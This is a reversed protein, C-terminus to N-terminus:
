IMENGDVLKGQKIVAKVKKLSGIHEFPNGEVAIIDADKGTELSGTENEIACIKAGNLTIAKLVDINAAGLEVAYEAEQALGGHMGDTGLAFPIGANIIARMRESIDEREDLHGQILHKPYRNVIEDNLIPSLTLVLKTNSKVLREIQYDSIHYAHELTNLGLELANDLGIGGVCHSAVTVGSKHSTSIATQIEEKTLFSPLERGKKLTGTIYIKIFDAGADINEKVANKIAESGDFPYGVFGHGKSSRIGKGAVISRPGTILGSNVADRCAVDLYERDGLTRCTTVGAQIDKKMMATARLTLDPISDSMRDLYNEQSADLSHHTHSDILGPLLTSGSFDHIKEFSSSNYDAFSGVSVIKDDEILVAGSPLLGDSIGDWLYACKILIREAM